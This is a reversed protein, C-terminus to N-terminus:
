TTPLDQPSDGSEAGSMILIVQRIASPFSGFLGNRIDVVVNAHQASAIPIGLYTRTFIDHAERTKGNIVKLYAAVDVPGDDRIMRSSVAILVEVQSRAAEGPPVLRRDGGGRGHPKFDLQPLLLNAGEGSGTEQHIDFNLLSSLETAVPIVLKAAEHSGERFQEWYTQKTTAQHRSTATLAAMRASLEELSASERAEPPPAACAHLEKAMDAMTIRDTAENLTAKELMRDLEASFRFTIREQLSQSADAAWHTGPLPISVGTLLVWLTKALAYVDAPGAEATDADERMEPAMYDIPGLRRGHVTRPDKEPYTVLGFDGILWHGGREFLNDPKIDRHWTEEAALATLTTAIEAVAAVVLGPEPDSGLTKLIPTAEPMVYWSRKALDESIRNDLLPLIGRFNPHAILFSIEDKFRALRYRGEDERNKRPPHLIKIVGTRGGSAKVRWVEGNGGGGLRETGVITWDGYRWGARTTGM